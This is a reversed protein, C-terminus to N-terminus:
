PWTVELVRDTIQLNGTYVIKQPIESRLENYRAEKFEESFDYASKGGVGCIRSHHSRHELGLSAHGIIKGEVMM